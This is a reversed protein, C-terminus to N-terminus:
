ILLNGFLFFTCVKNNLIKDFSVHFQKSAISIKETDISVGFFNDSDLFRLYINITLIGLILQRSQISLVLTIM